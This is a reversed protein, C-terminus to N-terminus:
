VRFLALLCTRLKNIPSAATAGVLTIQRMVCVWRTAAGFSLDWLTVQFGSGGLAGGARRGETVPSVM